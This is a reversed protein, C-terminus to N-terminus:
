YTSLYSDSERVLIEKNQVASLGDQQQITIRSRIIRKWYDADNNFNPIVIQEGDTVKDDELAEAIDGALRDLISETHGLSFVSYYTNPKHGTGRPSSPEIKIKKDFKMTKIGGLPSVTTDEM